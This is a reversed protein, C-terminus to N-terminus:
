WTHECGSAKKFVAYFIQRFLSIRPLNHQKSCKAFKIKYLFPPNAPFEFVEKLTPKCFEYTQTQQLGLPCQYITAKHFDSKNRAHKVDQCVQKCRSMDIYSLRLAIYFYWFVIKNHYSAITIICYFDIHSM